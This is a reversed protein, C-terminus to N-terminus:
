DVQVLERLGRSSSAQSPGPLPSREDNAATEPHQTAWGNGLRVIRWSDARVSSAESGYGQAEIAADRGAGDWPEFDDWGEADGRAEAEDRRARAVGPVEVRPLARGRVPSRSGRTPSAM